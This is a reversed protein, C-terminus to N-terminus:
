SINVGLSTLIRLTEINDSSVYVDNATKKHHMKIQYVFHHAIVTRFGDLLYEAPPIWHNGKYWNNQFLWQQLRPSNVNTQEFAWIEKTKLYSYFENANIHQFENQTYGIYTTEYKPYHYPRMVCEDLDYIHLISRTM